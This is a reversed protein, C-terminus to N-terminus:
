SSVQISGQNRACISSSTCIAPATRVWPRAANRSRSRSYKRLRLPKASLRSAVKVPRRIFGSTRWNRWDVQVHMRDVLPHIGAGGFEGGAGGIQIGGILFLALGFRGVAGFDHHQAAAGVADALADLEVVAADMGSEGQALVAVFGDHDVAVRFRHGGVEVGGVPQIELRQGQLVHQLDDALLLGLAHDDLVAPLGRQLQGPRQFGVAHRDDAGARVGDVAGLVAFAKLLHDVVEPQQLRGVAGGAFGLFRHSQRALDAIRQHHARGVHQAAPGHFDDMVLLIQAAVHAFGHLDGIFRRHQQVAEEVVGDLHVHVREAVPGEDDDAADHLVDLFGAHM